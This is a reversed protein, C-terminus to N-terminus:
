APHTADEGLGWEKGTDDWFIPLRPPWRLASLAFTKINHRDLEALGITPTVALLLREAEAGPMRSACFKEEWSVHALLKKPEAATTYIVLIVTQKLNM